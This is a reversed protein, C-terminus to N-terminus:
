VAHALAHLPEAHSAAVPVDVHAIGLDIGHSASAAAGTAPATASTVPSAIGSLADFGGGTAAPVHISDPLIAVNAVTPVPAGASGAHTDVLHTSGGGNSLVDVGLGSTATQPGLAVTAIDHSGSGGSVSGLLGTVSSALNGAGGGSVPSTLGSVTSGGTEVVGGALHTATDLADSPVGTGSGTLPATLGSATSAVTHVADGALSTTAGLPGALTSAAPSLAGGIDAAGLAHAADASATGVVTGLSGLTSGVDAATPSLGASAGSLIEAPVQAVDHLLGSQTGDVAGAVAQGVNGLGAPSTAGDVLAAATSTVTSVVGAGPLDGALVGAGNTPHTLADALGNQQLDAAIDGPLMSVASGISGVDAPLHTLPTTDGALLAGPASLTDTLLNGGGLTGLGVSNGVSIGGHIADPALPDVSAELTTHISNIADNAIGEVPLTALASVFGATNGVPDSLFGGSALDSSVGSVLNQAAGAINGVDAPLHTVTSLDGALLAAPTDLVDTVLNAGGIEGLGITEGLNTVGHVSGALGNPDAAVEFTAHLSGVTDNAFSTLPAGSVAGAETGLGALPAAVGPNVGADDATGGVLGSAAGEIANTEPLLQGIISTDGGALAAPAQVATTLLNADGIHGLGVTEGFNTLGHVSGILGNADAASELQAHLTLVAQNALAAPGSADSAPMELDAAHLVPDITTHAAPLITDTQGPLLTDAGSLIQTSRLPDIAM